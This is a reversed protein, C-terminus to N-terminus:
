AVGLSGMPWNGHMHLDQRSKCRDHGRGRSRSLTRAWRRNQSCAPCSRKRRRRGTHKAVAAPRCKRSEASFTPDAASRCRREVPERSTAPFETLGEWHQRHSSAGPCKVRAVQTLAAPLPTRRCRNIFNCRLRHPVLSPEQQRLRLPEPRGLTALRHRPSSRVASTRGCEPRAARPPARRHGSTSRRRASRRLGGRTRCCGPKRRRPSHPHM